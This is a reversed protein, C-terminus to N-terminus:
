FYCNCFQFCYSTLYFLSWLNETHVFVSFTNVELWDLPCGCHVLNLLALNIVFGAKLLSTLKFLLTFTPHFNTIAPISLVTWLATALVQRKCALPWRAPAVVVASVLSLVLGGPHQWCGAALQQAPVKSHQFSPLAPAAMTELSAKGYPAVHKYEM